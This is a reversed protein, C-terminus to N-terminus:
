SRSALLVVLQNSVPDDMWQSLIRLHEDHSDNGVPVGLKGHEAVGQHDIEAEEQPPTPEHTRVEEQPRDFGM